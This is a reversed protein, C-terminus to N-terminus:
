YCIYYKYNNTITAPIKFERYKINKTMLSKDIRTVENIGVLILNLKFIIYISGLEIQQEILSSRQDMNPKFEPQNHSNLDLNKNLSILM